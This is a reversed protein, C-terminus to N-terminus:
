DFDMLKSYKGVFAELKESDPRSRMLYFESGEDHDYLIARLEQVATWSDNLRKQGSTAKQEAEANRRALEADIEVLMAQYDDKSLEIRIGGIKILMTDKMYTRISLERM